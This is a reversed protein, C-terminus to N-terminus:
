VLAVDATSTRDLRGSFMNNRQAHGCLHQTRLRNTVQSSGVGQTTSLTPADFASECQTKSSSATPDKLAGKLPGMIASFAEQM